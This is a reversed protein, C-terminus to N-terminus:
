IPSADGDIDPLRGTWVAGRISHQVLDAPNAPRNPLLGLSSLFRSQGSGAALGGGGTRAGAGRDGVATQTEHPAGEPALPAELGHGFAGAFRTPLEEAPLM